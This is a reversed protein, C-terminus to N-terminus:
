GIMGRRPRPKTRKSPSAPKAKKQRGQQQKIILELEITSMRPLARRVTGKVTKAM